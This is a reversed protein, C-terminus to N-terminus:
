YLGGPLRQPGITSDGHGSRERLLFGAARDPMGHHLGGAIHFAIDVTGSEVLRAAQLTGGVCLQSWAYMGPFIPNDGPGLGYAAYDMRCVGDDAAALIDVYASTHFLELEARQAPVTEIM